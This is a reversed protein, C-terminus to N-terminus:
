DCPRTARIKLILRDIADWGGEQDSCHPEGRSAIVAQQYSQSNTEVDRWLLLAGILTSREQKTFEPM